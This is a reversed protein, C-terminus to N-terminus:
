MPGHTLDWRSQYHPPHAPITGRVQYVGRELDRQSKEWEYWNVAGWCLPAFGTKRTRIIEKGFAKIHCRALNGSFHCDGARESWARIFTDTHTLSLFLTHAQSQSIWLYILDETRVLFVEKSLLHLRSCFVGVLPVVSVHLGTGTPIDIFSSRWGHNLLM